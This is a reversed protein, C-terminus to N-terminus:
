ANKKKKLPKKVERQLQALTMGTFMEPKEGKVRRRIEAYMASRQQRTWPM